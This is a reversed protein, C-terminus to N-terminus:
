AKYFITDTKVYTAIFHLYYGVVKHSLVRDSVDDLM